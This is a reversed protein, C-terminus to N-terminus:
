WRVLGAIFTAIYLSVNALTPKKKRATVFALGLVGALSLAVVKAASAEIRFDVVKFSLAWAAVFGSVALAASEVISQIFSQTKTGSVVGEKPALNSWEPVFYIRRGWPFALNHLKLVSVGELFSPAVEAVDRQRVEISCWWRKVHLAEHGRDVEALTIMFILVVLLPSALLWYVPRLGNLFLLVIGSLMLPMWATLVPRSITLKM